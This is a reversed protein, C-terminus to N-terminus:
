APSTRILPRGHEALSRALTAYIYEDPFYLPTAHALAVVFRILFSAGVIGALVVRAPIASIWALGFPLRLEETRPARFDIAM